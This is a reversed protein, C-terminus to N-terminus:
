YLDIEMYTGMQGNIFAGCYESQPLIPLVGTSVVFSPDLCAEFVTRGDVGPFIPSPTNLLIMVTTFPRMNYPIGDASIGPRNKLMGTIKKPSNAELPVMAPDGIKDTNGNPFRTMPFVYAQLQPNSTQFNIAFDMENTLSRCVAVGGISMGTQGAKFDSLVSECHAFDTDGVSQVNDVTGTFSSGGTTLGSSTGGTTTTETNKKSARKNSPPDCSLFFISTIILALFTKM